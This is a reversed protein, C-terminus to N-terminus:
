TGADAVPSLVMAIESHFRRGSHASPFIRAQATADPASVEHLGADFHCSRIVFRLVDRQPSRAIEHRLGIIWPHIEPECQWHAMDQTRTEPSAVPCTKPLTLTPWPPLRSQREETAAVASPSSLM